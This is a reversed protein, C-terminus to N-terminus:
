KKFLESLFNAFKEPNEILDTREKVPMAEIIERFQEEKTKSRRQAAEPPLFEEDVYELYDALAKRSTLVWRRAKPVADLMALFLQPLYHHKKASYAIVTGQWSPVAQRVKKEVDTVRGQINAQQRESPLNTYQNWDSPEVLDAKNLAFVMKNIILPNFERIEHTLYRQVDAFARYQADLVWLAVDADKLVREYTALHISQKAMSEGLGPMDYVILEGNAVKIETAEQTCAEFHSIDQGANFLVHNQILVM